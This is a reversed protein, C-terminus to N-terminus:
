DPIHNALPSIQKLEPAQHVIAFDDMKSRAFPLTPSSVAYRRPDIINVWSM